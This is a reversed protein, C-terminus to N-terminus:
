KGLSTDLDITVRPGVFSMDGRLISLLQPLEDMATARLLKGAKTIRADEETAWVPGRCREAPCWPVSNIYLFPKRGASFRAWYKILARYLWATVTFFIYSKAKPQFCAFSISTSYTICFKDQPPFNEIWFIM